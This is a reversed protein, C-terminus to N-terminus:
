FEVDALGSESASGSPTTWVMTTPAAITHVGGAGPTGFVITVTSLGAIMTSATFDVANTYHAALDVSGLAPMPAGAPTEIFLSSVGAQHDFHATVNTASGDWGSLVLSPTVPGSFTFVITDGTEARGLTVSGNATQVDAPAPM